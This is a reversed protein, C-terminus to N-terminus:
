MMYSLREHISQKINKQMCLHTRQPILEIFHPRTEVYHPRSKVHSACRDQIHPLTRNEYIVQQCNFTWFTTTCNLPLCVYQRCYNNLSDPFSYDPLLQSYQSLIYISHMIYKTVMPSQSSNLQWQSGLHIVEVTASLDLTNSNKM